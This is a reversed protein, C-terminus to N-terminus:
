EGSTKQLDYSKIGYSVEVCRNDVEDYADCKLKYLELKNRKFKFGFYEMKEATEGFGVQDIQLGADFYDILPKYYKTSESDM